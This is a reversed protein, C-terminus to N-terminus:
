YENIMEDLRKLASEYNLATVRVVRWGKVAAHNYKDTDKTYHRATNHGSKAMFVGGEYEVAIKLAPWAFDFRWKRLADFRHEREMTLAQENSWLQLNMELWRLAKSKNRDVPKRKPAEEVFLHPNRKAAPSNKLQDLTITSRNKM